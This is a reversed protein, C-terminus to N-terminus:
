VLSRVCSVVADNVEGALGRCAGVLARAATDNRPSRIRLEDTMDMSTGGGVTAPMPPSLSM